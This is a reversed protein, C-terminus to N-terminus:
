QLYIGYRVRSYPHNKILWNFISHIERRTRAGELDSKMERNEFDDWAYLVIDFIAHEVINFYGTIFVDKGAKFDHYTFILQIEVEDSAEEQFKVENIDITLDLTSVSFRKKMRLRRRSSVIYCFFIKRYYFLASLCEAGEM